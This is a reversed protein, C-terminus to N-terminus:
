EVEIKTIIKNDQVARFYFGEEHAYDDEKLAKGNYKDFSVYDGVQVWAPQDKWCMPGIDMVQGWDNALSERNVEEDTKPVFLGGRTKSEAEAKAIKIIVFYGLAKHKLM